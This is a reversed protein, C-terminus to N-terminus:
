KDVQKGSFSRYLDDFVAAGRELRQNDDNHSSAIGAILTRIGAAEERGYKGDKLDIDHIIEGIAALALDDLAAEALLVEFTCRDGRHTFEGEFMDFRLEGPQAVYGTGPVFKFRAQRDIFRRILWASAIRDIQVGQRTVWVRDQLEGAPPSESDEASMAEEEQQLEAELGSVLGETPERGDAGFFDIAIIEDLQRRLRAVPGALEARSSSSRKAALERASAAVEAYDEDRAVGFLARVEGDNLGDVLSAECVFGEGGLEAIEKILWAFDERTEESSPLAYVSNKVTVAGLGKLRRWIKVRAYAPKTPLQHILLLWRVGESTEDNNM